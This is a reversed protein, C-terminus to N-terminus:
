WSPAVATVLPVPAQVGVFKTAGAVEAVPVAVKVWFTAVVKVHVTLLPTPAFHASLDAVTTMVWAPSMVEAVGTDACDFVIQEVSAAGNNFVVATPASFGTTSVPAHDATGGAVMSAAPCVPLRCTPSLMNLYVMVVVTGPQKGESRVTVILAIAGGVALM